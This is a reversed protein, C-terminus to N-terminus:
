NALEEWERQRRRSDDLVNEENTTMLRRSLRYHGISFIFTVLGIITIGIIDLDSVGTMAIVYVVIGVLMAIIQLMFTTQMEQTM